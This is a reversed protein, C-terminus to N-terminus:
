YVMLCFRNKFSDSIYKYIDLRKSVDLEQNLMQQSTTVGINGRINSTHTQQLTNGGTESANHTLTSDVDSSDSRTLTYGDTASETRSLSGSEGTTGGETDKSSPTLAAGNFGSVDHQLTKGHTTTKSTTDSLSGSHSASNTDTASGTTSGDLVDTYGSTKNNTGTDTQNWIETRNYNELPDYEKQIAALIREWIPLERESWLKIMFRMANPDPYLIELEANDMIISSIATASDVGNPLVMDAFITTDYNYLGLISLTGWM